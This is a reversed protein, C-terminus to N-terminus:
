AMHAAAKMRVTIPIAREDFFYFAAHAHVDAEAEYQAEAVNQEHGDRGGEGHRADGGGKHGHPNGVDEVGDDGNDKIEFGGALGWSAIM